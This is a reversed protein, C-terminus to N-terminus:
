FRGIERFSFLFNFSSAPDIIRKKKKKKKLIV